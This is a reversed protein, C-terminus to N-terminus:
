PYNYMSFRGDKGNGFKRVFWLENSLGIFTLGLQTESDNIAGCEPFKCRFDNQFFPLNSFTQFGELM